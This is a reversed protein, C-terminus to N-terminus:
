NTGTKMSAIGADPVLVDIKSGWSVTGQVLPEIEPISAVNSKIVIAKGPGIKQMLEDSPNSNSLYKIVM